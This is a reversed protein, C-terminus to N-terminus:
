VSGTKGILAKRHAQDERVAGQIDADTPAATPLVATFTQDRKGDLVYIILTDMLGRRTPNISPFKRAEIIQWQAM